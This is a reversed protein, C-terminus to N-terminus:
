NTRGLFHEIFRTLRSDIRYRDRGAAVSQFEDAFDQWDYRLPRSGFTPATSIHLFSGATSIFRTTKPM